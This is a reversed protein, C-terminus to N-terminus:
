QATHILRWVLTEIMFIKPLNGSNVFFENRALNKFAIANKCSEQIWHYEQLIRALIKCSKGLKCSDQLIKRVQLFRALDQLFYIKQICMVNQYNLCKVLFNTYDVMLPLIQHVWRNFTNQLRVHKITDPILFKRFDNAKYHSLKDSYFYLFSAVKTWLWKVDDKQIVDNQRRRFRRSVSPESDFTVNKRCNRLSFSLFTDLENQAIFYM